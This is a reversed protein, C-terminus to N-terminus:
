DPDVSYLELPVSKRFTRFGVKRSVFTMRFSFNLWAVGDVAESNADIRSASRKM